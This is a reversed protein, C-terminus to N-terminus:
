GKRYRKGRWGGSASVPWDSAWAPMSSMIREVEELSGFGYPVEVVVEDYVHLVTPYGAVRLMIIAHRLIDHAVAQVINETLRGGYTSMRVWGMAGYKPNSNHTSYLISVEDANRDSQVLRPEHYTLDRGSPLTIVLKDRASLYTFGIGRFEQRVDPVRLARIFAGEVGYLEAYERRWPPGRWQGGWFEVIAPSAARWALIQARITEDDETSGFAKYSGIWGGFGCALESVKGINQRDPHHDGHQEKYALYSALPVGTIKSAGVLYIPEHNRFADIRWQEGALMALVVAEIASYDSAILDHGEAAVFLGRVCGSIALLADGFFQEVMALSHLAMIELVDDVYRTQWSPRQQRVNYFRAGCWPCDTATPRMPRKCAECEVLKPGAKPLNLPQVGGGGTPRGTRAGHHVITDRIRNDRCTTNELAYIKKVSASGTLARIELVRRAHPPLDDRALAAEVAEADLTYLHVGQAALWGRVAEVQSPKLGGTLAECEAGYQDLVQNLIVICDRVGARDVGIGRANIEQDILWFGLEAPTMPDMADSAAQEVQVDRACYEYLRMADDPDDEPRIRLRPDGKTPNRPVSFKDLLRKGDKDKRTDLRLVDGLNDLAGPLSQVRATAMSCRQVYPPLPPWGYKPVCVNTWILREFMANHSEIPRGAAVHEFLDVPNPLGPRWFQVGRGDALDYRWCLVETSPHESYAAAGIAPLGKRRAGAPPQWRGTTANWDHGAESYTECDQAAHTV